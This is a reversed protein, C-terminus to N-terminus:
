ARRSITVPVGAGIRTALWAIAHRALRVCGHSAASGLSGSLHATGHLAIQGPGGDFEQLVNSRASTALAFPAGSEWDSLALAEEVFFRGRPTPTSAKGVIADFRRVVRGEDFVIVRRAALAVRIRWPTTTARTRNTSIWGAHGNPRGPLLVRVWNGDRASRGLVPLVTRVATLPRRAAVSEIRRAHPNPAVRAVHNGLLVVLAQSAPTAGAPVAAAALAAGVALVATAAAVGRRIGLSRTGRSM